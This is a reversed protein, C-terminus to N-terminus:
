ILLHAKRILLCFEDLGVDTCLGMSYINCNVYGHLRGHILRTVSYISFPQPRNLHCM